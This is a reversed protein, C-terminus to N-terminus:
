LAATGPIVSGGRRFFLAARGTYKAVGIKTSGLTARAGSPHSQFDPVRARVTRFLPVIRGPNNM